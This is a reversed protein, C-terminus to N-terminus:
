AGDFPQFLGHDKARSGRALVLRLGINVYGEIAIPHTEPRYEIQFIGKIIRSKGVFQVDQQYRDDLVLSEFCGDLAGRNNHRLNYRYAYLKAFQTLIIHIEM